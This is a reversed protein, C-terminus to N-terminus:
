PEKIKIRPRSGSGNAPAHRDVAGGDFTENINWSAYGRAGSRCHQVADCFFLVDGGSIFFVVLFGLRTM